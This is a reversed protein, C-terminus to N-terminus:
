LWFIIEPPPQSNFAPKIDDWNFILWLIDFDNMEPETSICNYWRRAQACAQYLFYVNDREIMADVAQVLDSPCKNRMIEISYLLKCKQFFIDDIQRSEFDFTQEYSKMQLIIAKSNIDDPEMLHKLIHLWEKGDIFRNFSFTKLLRMLGTENLFKRLTLWTHFLEERETFSVPIEFIGPILCIDVKKISYFDEFRKTLDM